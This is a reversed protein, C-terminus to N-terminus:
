GHRPRDLVRLGLLVYLGGDDLPRFKLGLDPFLRHRRAPQGSGRRLGVISSIGANFSIISMVAVRWIAVRFWGGTMM